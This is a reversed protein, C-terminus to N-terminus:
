RTKSRKKRKERHGSVLLLQSLGGGELLYHFIQLALTARTLGIGILSMDYQGM